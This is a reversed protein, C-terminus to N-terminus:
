YELYGAENARIEYLTPLMIITDVGHKKLLANEEFADYTYDYTDEEQYQDYYWETVDYYNLDAVTTYPDDYYVEYYPDDHRMMAAKHAERKDEEADIKARVAATATAYETM